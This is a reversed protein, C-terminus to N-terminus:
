GVVHQRPSSSEPAARQQITVCIEAGYLFIMSSIWLWLMVIVIVSLPGYVRNYTGVQLVWWGFLYKSLGWLISAAVGGTLAAGVEVRVSPTLKYLASFILVDVMFTPLFTLAAGAVLSAHLAALVMAWFWTLALTVVVFVVVWVSVALGRLKGVWFPRARPSRWIRNVAWDLSDHLGTTGLLLGVVGLITTAVRSHRIPEWYTDLFEKQTLGPTVQTFLHRVEQPTVVGSLVTGVLDLLILALPIASLFGFFAIMGAMGMANDHWFGVAAERLWILPVPLSLRWAHHTAPEAKASQHVHPRAM